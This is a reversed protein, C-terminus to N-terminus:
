STESVVEYVDGGWIDRVLPTESVEGSKPDVIKVYAEFPPPTEPLKIEVAGRRSVGDGIKGISWLEVRYGDPINKVTIIHSTYTYLCDPPVIEELGDCRIWSLRIRPSSSRSMFELQIPYYVGAVLRLGRAIYTSDRICM